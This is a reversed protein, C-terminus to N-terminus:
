TRGRPLRSRPWGGTQFEFMWSQRGAVLGPPVRLLLDRGLQGLRSRPQLIRLARLSAQQMRRAREIREGEYTRLAVVPGPRRVLCTALVVADELALCAGQGAGPSMAHAADGLLTVAAAASAWVPPRDYREHRLIERSSTAQILSPVPDWWRGFVELLETRLDGVRQGPPANICCFWYTQDRGVPHWGAHAGRGVALGGSSLPLRALGRWAIAGLHRPSDSLLQQRVVSHLGDAGVLLGAEVREGGALLAAAGDGTVEVGTVRSGTQIADEGLADRLAEMLDARRVCFGPTGFRRQLDITGRNLVKGDWRQILDNRLPAGREAVARALGLRELARMANPWLSLGAGVEALQPRAELVRVEVGARRMALGAALGGIGGGVVVAKLGTRAV